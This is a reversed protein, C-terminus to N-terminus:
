LGEDCRLEGRRESYCGGDRWEGEAKEKEIRDMIERGASPLQQLKALSRAM